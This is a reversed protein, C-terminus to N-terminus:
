KNEFYFYEGSEKQERDLQSDPKNIRPRNTDKDRRMTVGTVKLFGNMGERKNMPKSAHGKVSSQGDFVMLRNAIADIFVIDHDVVFAAKESESIVNRLLKAFEFRQEIDLFASPEDFLYIDAEQSLALTCAVRQLEGGSLETLKKEMLPGINLKRKAEEFVASNIKRSSFMEQVQVEEASIYQPKYSVKRSIATGKDPKEVGALMKVFLSKGLANKGVLGLIEGKRIEGPDSSFVFGGGGKFSKGLQEYPLLAASKVESESHRSFTVEHDRFRVNEDKLFGQLYENIGVRANKVHSVVGYANEEGYILYVYSSVYDLITLDHEAMLVPKKESLEKLIVAMRLREEIDLYNTVEDFYYVDAEKLFATAIAVKQLEGGSLQSIKRSLIEELAFRAIAAEIAKGDAGSTKLLGKVTGSFVDRVKDIYQPKASIKLEGSVKEFYRRMEIPLREQVAKENLESDFEAFNPRIQKSLIRIATTKGIGNKGVLSVAGTEKPLPLGYLRFSNIGYQYLPHELEGALNIITICNVPCKKVCLGCGICLVESIVPFNSDKEVTICEEGMRNPPCVKVCLYGCIERVCLNRDIVAIRTPM